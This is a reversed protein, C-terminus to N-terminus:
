ELLAFKYGICARNGSIPNGNLFTLTSGWLGPVARASAPPAAWREPRRFVFRVFTDALGMWRGACPSRFLRLVSLLLLFFFFSRDVHARGDRGHWGAWIWIGYPRISSQFSGDSESKVRCTGTCTDYSHVARPGAAVCFACLCHFVCSVIPASGAGCRVCPPACLTMDHMIFSALRSDAGRCRRSTLFRMGYRSLCVM